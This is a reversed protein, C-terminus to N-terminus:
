FVVRTGLLGEGASRGSLTRCFELADLQVDPGDGARAFWGGAPGLLHLAFPQGHRDAWERVVDTVLRGDHEPTLQPPRATARCVDLRHMWADRTLIVDMLDALTLRDGSSPLPARRLLAPVRRRARVAPGIRDQLELALAVDTLTSREEIHLQNMADLFNRGSLKSRQGALKRQRAGERLATGAMSGAVHALVDRVTWGSCETPEAWEDQSLQEALDALRHYEEAALGPAERRSIRAVGDIDVAMM